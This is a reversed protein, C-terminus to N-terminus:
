TPLGAVRLAKSGTSWWLLTKRAEFQAGQWPSFYSTFAAWFISLFQGESMLEEHPLYGHGRFLLYLLQSMAKPLLLPSGRTPVHVMVQSGLLNQFLLLRRLFRNSRTTCCRGFRCLCACAARAGLFLLPFALARTM